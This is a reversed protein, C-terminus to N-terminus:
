QDLPIPETQTHETTQPFQLTSLHLLEVDHTQGRQHYPSYYPLSECFTVDM